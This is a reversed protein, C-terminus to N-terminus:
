DSNEKIQFHQDVERKVVSFVEDIGKSTTDIIIANEAPRLPSAKRDRDRADRKAIEGILDQLNGDVGKAKLQLYRRKAREEPSAEFYFKLNAQPFIVTGMDRGDAVLGPLQCFKRQRELLAIRVEPVAAIQSAVNGCAETRIEHTVDQDSLFVDMQRQEPNKEFTLALERAEDVIAHMQSLDLNKQQVAYALVRYIAGSDLYNWELSDALMYSITGKGSGSPGDITIIPVQNPM